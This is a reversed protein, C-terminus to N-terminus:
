VNFNVDVNSNSLNFEKMTKKIAKVVDYKKYMKEYFNNINWLQVNDINDITFIREIKKEKTKGKKTIKNSIIVHTELECIDWGYCELMRDYNKLGEGYHEYWYELSWHEGFLDVDISYELECLKTGIKESTNKLFNHIIKVFQSDEARYEYEYFQKGNKDLGDYGFESTDYIM